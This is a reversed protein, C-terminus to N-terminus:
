EREDYEKEVVEVPDLCACDAKEGESGMGSLLSPCRGAIRAEGCQLLAAWARELTYGLRPANLSDARGSLYPERHAWSARDLLATRLEKYLAQGPARIRAASAIFQGKYTLLVRDCASASADHQQQQQHNGEEEQQQSHQQAGQQARLCLDRLLAADEYWGWRDGCKKNGAGADRTDCMHGAFGLSLMGTAVPDFYQEVRRFFDDENHVDAQAFLTHRALGEWQGVMHELYTAGERGANPLQTVRHANTAAQLAALEPESLAEDKTYLFLRPASANIAPIAALGAMIANVASIPEEYMSIVVDFGHRPEYALDLHPPAAPPTGVAMPQFNRIIFLTWAVLMVVLAAGFVSADQVSQTAATDPQADERSCEEDGGGGAREALQQLGLLGEADDVHARQKGKKGHAGMGDSPQLSFLLGMTTFYAPLQSITAYSGLTIFTSAWGVVATLLCNAGLRALWSVHARCPTATDDLMVPILFSSGILLAAVTSGVNLGLLLPDVNALDAAASWTSEKWVCGVFTFFLALPLGMLRYTPVSGYRHRTVAGAGPKRGLATAAGALAMAPVTTLLNETTLRYEDYVVYTCLVLGVFFLPMRHFSTWSLTSHTVFPTLTVDTFYAIIPMMLLSPLNTWHLVAQMTLPISLALCIAAPLSRLAHGTTTEEDDHESNTPLWEPIRQYGDSPSVVYKALIVLSCVLLAWLLLHSPYHYYNEILLYRSTLISISASIFWVSSQLLRSKSLSLSLSACLSFTSSFLTLSM